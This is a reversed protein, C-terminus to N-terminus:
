LIIKFSIKWLIICLQNEVSNKDCYQSNPKKQSLARKRPKLFFSANFIPIPIIDLPSTASIVACFPSAAPSKLASKKEAIMSNIM